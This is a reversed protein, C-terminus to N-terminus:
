DNHNEKEYKELMKNVKAYWQEQAKRENDASILAEIMLFPLVLAVFPVEIQLWAFM